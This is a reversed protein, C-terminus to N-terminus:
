VHKGAIKCIEWIYRIDWNWVAGLVVTQRYIFWESCTKDILSMKFQLQNFVTDDSASCTCYFTDFDNMKRHVHSTLHCREQSTKITKKISINHTLHTLNPSCHNLYCCPNKLIHFPLRSYNLHQFNWSTTDFHAKWKTQTHQLLCVTM